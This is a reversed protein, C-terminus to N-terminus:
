RSRALADADPWRSLIRKLVAHRRTLKQRRVIARFASALHARWPDTNAEPEAAAKVWAAAIPELCAEDGLVHLAALFSVPLRPAPGDEHM